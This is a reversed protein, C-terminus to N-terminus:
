IVTRPYEKLTGKRTYDATGLPFVLSVCVCVFGSLSPVVVGASRALAHLVRRVRGLRVFVVGRFLYVFM